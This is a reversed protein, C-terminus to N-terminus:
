ATDQTERSQTELPTTNMLGYRTKMDTYREFVHDDLEAMPLADLLPVLQERLVKGRAMWQYYQRGGHDYPGYLRSGPCIRLMAEFLKRHRTHMRLTIHPQKGDGGFHGEGILIGLLLGQDFPTTPASPEPPKNM